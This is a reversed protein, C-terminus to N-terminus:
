AASKQAKAENLKELVLIIKDQGEKETIIKQMTEQIDIGFIEVLVQMLELFLQWLKEWLTYERLEQNEDRFIEGLTDYDSFRKRLNLLMYVIISITTDAIQADFDNSQSKGLQLYQKSEKYFVEISWRIQYIEITKIYTLSSDTTVLLTWDNRKSYKSFYLQMSIDKYEVKLGIYRSKTKRCRKNLKTNKTKNLLEKATYEKGQYLYKRKDMKCMGLLHMAGQKIKRIEIIMKESVFWSDMLVYKAIIGHKIARKIMAIANSPKDTYLEKVRKAGPINKEREKHYQRKLEKNKMGYPKKPNKGIERHFSFDITNFSIGDWFGLTLMRFGLLSKKTVHDFLKGIFEIRKGTKELLSDDIIFCKIINETITTNRKVLYLYRSIFLYLLKRWDIRSDNKLRYYTDKECQKLDNSGILIMGRVTVSLIRTLLLGFLVNYATIGKSKANDFFTNIAKINFRQFLEILTDNTKEKQILISKLESINHIKSTLQMNKM